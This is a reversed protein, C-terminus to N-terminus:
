FLFVVGVGSRIGVNTFRSESENESSPTSNDREHSMGLEGFVGFRTSMAYRAGFSGSLTHGITERDGPALVIVGPREDHSTKSISRRHVYRPSLYLSLSEERHVFFLASIGIGVQWAESSSHSVGFSDSSTHKAEAFDLSLEPRVAVRTSAEWLLGLSAPYGISLGIHPTDQAPAESPVAALVAVGLILLRLDSPM